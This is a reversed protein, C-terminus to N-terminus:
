GLNEEEFLSLAVEADTGHGLVQGLKLLTVLMEKMGAEEPPNEENILSVFQLLIDKVEPTLHGARAHIEVVKGTGERGIRRIGNSVWGALGILTAQDLRGESPSPPRGPPPSPGKKDEPFTPELTLVDEQPLAERRDARRHTDPGPEARAAPTQVSQYPQGAVEKPSAQHYIPAHERSSAPPTEEARLSPYYHILIQERIDLLTDKIENKLVKIENELRRVRTELDM